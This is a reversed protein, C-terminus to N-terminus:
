GTIRGSTRVVTGLFREPAAHLVNLRPDPVDIVREVALARLPELRPDEMVTALARRDGGLVVADLRGVWPLLVRAAVDAAAELAARAEGERRRAFRGSSSGGKRHRGHVLRRAVKSEVLRSGEFVGAAHGGLRVLVVGVTRERAVHELLAAPDFGPREGRAAVDLPGFPPECTAVAGDAGLFVVEREGVRTSEPPGHAAAWRELWRALRAPPVDYRESM